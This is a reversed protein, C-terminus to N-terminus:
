SRGEEYALMMDKEMDNARTVQGFFVLKQKAARQRLSMDGRAHGIEKMISENTRNETWSVRPMRRWVWTECADIKKEMERTKTSNTWTEFGYLIVPFIMANEIRTKTQLSVHKDKWIKELGQLTVKGLM